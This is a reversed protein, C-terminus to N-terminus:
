LGEFVFALNRRNALAKSSLASFCSGTITGVGFPCPPMWAAEVGKQFQTPSDSASGGARRSRSAPPEANHRTPKTTLRMKTTRGGVKVEFAKGISVDYPNGDVELVLELPPEEDSLVAVGVVAVSGFGAAGALVATLLSSRLDSAHFKMRGLM